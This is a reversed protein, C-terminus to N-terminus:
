VAQLFAFRLFVDGVKIRDGHKVEVPVQPTLALGRVLTGNKSGLDQIFYHDGSRSFELHRSSISLDSGAIDARGIVLSGGAETNVLTRAGRNSGSEVILMPYRLHIDAPPEPLEEDRSYGLLTLVQEISEIREDPDTMVMMPLVQDAKPNFDCHFGDVDICTEPTPVQSLFEFFDKLDRWGKYRWYHQGTTLEFLIHGLAYIDVRSDANRSGEPNVFIEPAMYPATGMFEGVKTLKKEKFRSVGFDIVKVTSDEGVLVNAPKIDRHIINHYHADAIGLLIQRFIKQKLSSTLKAEHILKELSKGSFYDFLILFTNEDWECLGLARVIYDSPISVSAENRVREALTTDANIGQLVKLCYLDGTSVDAVKWVTGFAGVGLLELLEVQPISEIDLLPVRGGPMIQLPTKTM